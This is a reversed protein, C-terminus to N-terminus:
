AHPEFDMIFCGHSEKGKVVVADVYTWAGDELRRGSLNVHADLLLRIIGKNGRHLETGKVMGPEVLNVIVEDADLYDLMRVFFLQGLLKSIFYRAPTEWRVLKPDDFSALFPRTDSNPLKAWLATGSSVITLRGPTGPPSKDKLQPLLLIALLFTSLYNVQIIEEHGTTPCLAFDPRTLGANLIVMDLRSLDTNVRRVFTQISEYSTMELPWVQIRALPYDKRLKSAASEGKSVTRVALILHSLKLSLLHIGAHLGLGTNGGTIIAVQGSLNTAAPAHRIKTVFQSQVFMRLAGVDAEHGMQMSKSTM